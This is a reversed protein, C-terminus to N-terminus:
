VPEKVCEDGATEEGAHEEGGGGRGWLASRRLRVCRSLRKSVMLPFCPNNGTVNAEKAGEEHWDAM